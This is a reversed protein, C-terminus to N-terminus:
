YIKIKIIKKLTNPLKDIKILKFFIYRSYDILLSLLSIQLSYMIVKLNMKIYHQNKLVSIKRVFYKGIIRSHILYVGFTLPTISKIIMVILKSKIKLQSFFSILFIANLVMFISNYQIFIGLVYKKRYISSFYSILKIIWPIIMSLFFLLILKIKSIQLPFLKLNAGIIYLFMLWLPCYGEKISFPDDNKLTMFPLICYIILITLCLKKNESKNMLLIVKNMFPIFFYM